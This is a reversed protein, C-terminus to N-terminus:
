ETTEPPSEPEQKGEAGESASGAEDDKEDAIMTTIAAVRDGEDLRILRVGQSNRGIARIEDVGQRIMIGKQTIIMIEM